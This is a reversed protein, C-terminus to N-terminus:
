FYEEIFNHQHKSDLRLRLKRLSVDLIGQGLLLNQQLCVVKRFARRSSVEVFSVLLVMWIWVARNGSGTGIALDTAAGLLVFLIVVCAAMAVANLRLLNVMTNVCGSETDSMEAEPEIEQESEKVEREPTDPVMTAAQAVSIQAHNSFLHETSKM